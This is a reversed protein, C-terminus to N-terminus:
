QPRSLCQGLGVYHHPDHRLCNSCVPEMVLGEANQNLVMNAISQGRMSGGLYAMLARSSIPITNDHIEPHAFRM